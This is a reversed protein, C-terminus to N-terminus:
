FPSVITYANVEYVFYLLGRLAGYTFSFQLVPREEYFAIRGVGVFASAKSLVCLSALSIFVALLFVDHLCGILFLCLVYLHSPLFYPLFLFRFLLFNFINKLLILFVSFLFYM